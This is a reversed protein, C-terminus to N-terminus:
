ESSPPTVHCASWSMAVVGTVRLLVIRQSMGACGFRPTSATGDIATACVPANSSRRNTAYVIEGSPRGFESMWTAHLSLSVPAAPEHFKVTGCVTVVLLWNWGHISVSGIVPTGYTLQSSAAALGVLWVTRLVPVNLM